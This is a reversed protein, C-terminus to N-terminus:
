RPAKAPRSYVMEMVKWESGDPATDYMDTQCSGDRKTPHTVLRYPRGEPSMADHMMGKMELTGDEAQTGTALAFGTSMSDIWMSWFEETITNYGMTSQGEFPMGMMEGTFSEVFFRGGLIMHADAKAAMEMPETGPGMWVKSAVNWKGVKAAMEAHQEVPTMYKAMAAMVEPDEMPNADSGDQFTAVGELVPESSNPAVCASALLTLGLLLNLNKMNSDTNRAM